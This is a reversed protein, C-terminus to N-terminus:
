TEDGIIKKLAGAEEPLSDLCDDPMFELLLTRPPPFFRLYSKWEEIGDRLPFRRDGKWQFVHLHETYPSVAGAVRLNEDLTLWQFPQWYMRFRPSGVTKMLLVADEPRETFTKQHCEMCLLVDGAKEALEAARRCATFLTEREAPSMAAGSETGCWLRLVGTGLVGAAEIYRPLEELPTQGLRFYTGYSSCRIGYARQLAALKKLAATDRCPAHVDSGWEILSLGARQMASLIEEPTNKRFSVSVLGPRYKGNEM